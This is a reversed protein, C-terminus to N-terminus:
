HTGKARCPRPMGRLVDAASDAEEAAAEQQALAEVEHRCVSCVSVRSALYFDDFVGKVRRMSWQNLTVNKAHEFGHNICPTRFDWKEHM